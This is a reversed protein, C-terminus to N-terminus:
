ELFWSHLKVCLEEEEQEGPEEQVEEEQQEELEQLVNQEQQM